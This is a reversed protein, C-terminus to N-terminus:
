IPELNIEFRDDSSVAKYFLPVPAGAPRSALEVDKLRKADVRCREGLVVETLIGTPIPAFDIGGENRGLPFFCRYEEEYEWDKGKTFFLRHRISEFDEETKAGRLEDYTIEPRANSRCYTIPTLEYGIPMEFGLAIGKHSEGYHAWLLVKRASACFCLIGSGEVTAKLVRKAFNIKGAESAGDPFGTFNPRCDHIDNLDDIRGLKLRRDRLAAEAHEARLFRYVAM